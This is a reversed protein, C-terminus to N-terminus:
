SLGSSSSVHDSGAAFGNDIFNAADHLIAVPAGTSDRKEACGIRRASEGDYERNGVQAFVSDNQHSWILM